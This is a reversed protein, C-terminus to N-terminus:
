VAMGNEEVKRGNLNYIVHSFAEYDDTDVLLDDGGFLIRDHPGKGPRPWSKKLGYPDEEEPDFPTYGTLKEEDEIKLGMDRYMSSGLFIGGSGNQVTGPVKRIFNVPGNPSAEARAFLGDTTSGAFLSRATSTIAPASSEPNPFITLNPQLELAHMVM